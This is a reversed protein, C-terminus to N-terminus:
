CMHRKLDLECTDCAVHVWGRGKRSKGPAGCTMCTKSSRLSVAVSIAWFESLLSEPLRATIRLEGFKEKVQVLLPIEADPFGMDKRAVAESELWSFVEELLPIWGTESFEIGNRLAFPYQRYEQRHHGRCILPYKPLLAEVPTDSCDIVSAQILDTSDIPCSSSEDDDFTDTRSMRWISHLHEDDIRALLQPHRTRWYLFVLGMGKKSTYFHTPQSEPTTIRALAQMEKILDSTLHILLLETKLADTMIKKRNILGQESARQISPLLAM